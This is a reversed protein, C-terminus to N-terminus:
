KGRIHKLAQIVSAEDPAATADVLRGGPGVWVVAPPSLNHKALVQLFSPRDALEAATASAWVANGDAEFSALITSNTRLAAQQPTNADPVILVGYLKEGFVPTPTPAPPVPTPTPTPTPTPPGPPPIPSTGIVQVTWFAYARRPSKEGAPTGEAIVAFIYSGPKTASAVAYIPTGDKSYLLAPQVPEPGQALELVIPTDSISGTFKLWFEQDPTVTAPGKLTAKPEGAAAFAPGLAVFVMVMAAALRRM